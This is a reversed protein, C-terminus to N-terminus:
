CRAVRHAEAKHKEANVRLRSEAGCRPCVFPEPLLAGPAGEDSAEPAELTEAPIVTTEREAAASAFPREFFAWVGAPIM